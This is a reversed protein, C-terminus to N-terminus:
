HQCNFYLNWEQNSCPADDLSGYDEEWTVLAIIAFPVVYKHLQIHFRLAYLKKKLDQIMIRHNRETMRYQLGTRFYQMILGIVDDPLCEYRAMSAM